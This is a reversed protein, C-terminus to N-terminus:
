EMDKPPTFVFAKDGVTAIYINCKLSEQLSFLSRMVIAFGCKDQNQQATNSYPSYKLYFDRHIILVKVITCKHPFVWKHRQIIEGSPSM